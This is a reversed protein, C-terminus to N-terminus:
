LRCLLVLYLAPHPQLVAELAKFLPPVTFHFPGAFWPGTVMYDCAVTGEITGEKLRKIKIEKHTTKLKQCFNEMVIYTCNIGLSPM